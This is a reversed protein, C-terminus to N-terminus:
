GLGGDPRARLGPPLRELGRRYEALGITAVPPGATLEAMLGVPDPLGSVTFGAQGLHEAIGILSAPTDLGVAYGGRGGKGPYDSLVCALRRAARPTRRLRAWALALDAAHAIRSADPRHSVPAHEVAAHRSGEGKFSIAGALVRGDTEPLVVNMALDTAGLGRSSEAWAARTVGAQVVQLVPVDAADLM